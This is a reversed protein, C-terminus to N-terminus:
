SCQVGSVGDSHIRAHMHNALTVELLRQGNARRIAEAQIDEEQHKKIQQLM